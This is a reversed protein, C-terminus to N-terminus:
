NEGASSAPAESWQWLIENAAQRLGDAGFAPRAVLDWGRGNDLATESADQACPGPKWGDYPEVRVLMGGLRRILAVENPFRVDDVVAMRAGAGRLVGVVHALRDCWYEPNEARREQGMAILIQRVSAEGGVLERHRVMSEKGATTENLLPDYGYRAAAEQKLAAAFSLRLSQESRSCLERALVTKGVGIKGSLGILIM